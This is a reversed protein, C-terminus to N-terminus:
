SEIWNSLLRRIQVMQGLHYANHDAVLLVQRLYSRGEGHPILATLDFRPERALRIVKKLDAQFCSVSNTWIKETLCTKSNPWYADPWALSQWSEDLTYQLIDEQAIRMHELEEWVSHLRPDPRVNRLNSKVGALVERSSVHAYGTELLHVVEDRLVVDTM